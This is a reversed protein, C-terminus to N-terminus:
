LPMSHMLSITELSIRISETIISQDIGFSLLLENLQDPSIGNSLFYLAAGNSVLITATTIDIGISTINQIIYPIAIGKLLQTSIILVILENYPNIAPSIPLPPPPPLEGRCFLGTINIEQEPPYGALRCFETIGLVLDSFWIEKAEFKNMYYIPKITCHSIGSYFFLPNSKDTEDSSLLYDYEMYNEPVSETGIKAGSHKYPGTKIKRCVESQLDRICFLDKGPETFFFINVEKPIEWKKKVQAGHSSLVFNAEIQKKGNAINYKIAQVLEKHPLNIGNLKAYNPVLVPDPNPKLKEDGNGGLLAKLQIYKSKYKIYKTKYDM